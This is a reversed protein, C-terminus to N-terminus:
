LLMPILHLTNLHCLKCLKVNEGYNCLNQLSLGNKSSSVATKAAGLSLARRNRGKARDESQKDKHNM